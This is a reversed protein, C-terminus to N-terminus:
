AGQSNERPSRLGATPDKVSCRYRSKEGSKLSLGIPGLKTEEAEDRALPSEFHMAMLCQDKSGVQHHALRLLRATARFVPMSRLGICKFASPRRSTNRSLLQFSNRRKPGPHLVPRCGAATAGAARPLIRLALELFNGAPWRLWSDSRVSFGHRTEFRSRFCGSVRKDCLHEQSPISSPRRLLSGALFLRFCVAAASPRRQV